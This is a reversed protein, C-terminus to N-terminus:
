IIDKVNVCTMILCWNVMKLKPSTKVFTEACRFSVTNFTKISFFMGYVVCIMACATSQESSCQQAFGM